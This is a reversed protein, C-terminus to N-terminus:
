IEDSLLAHNEMSSVIFSNGAAEEIFVTVGEKLEEGNRTRALKEVREEGIRCSIQGVTGPKIAVVVKATRGILDRESVSSSAQQTHLLYGFGFILAGFLIGSGVGLATSVLVTLGFKLAAAGVFGFATLFVSIVRSDLIGIEMGGDADFDADFDLDFAEFLDGLILSVVLFLFGLGGVALFIILSNFM